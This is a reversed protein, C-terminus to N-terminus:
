VAPKNSAQSSPITGSTLTLDTEQQKRADVAQKKEESLKRQEDAIVEAVILEDGRAQKPNEKAKRLGFFKRNTWGGPYLEDKEMLQKFKYPVVVKWCKTRPDVIYTALQEVKVISFTTDKDM